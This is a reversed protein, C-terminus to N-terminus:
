EKRVKKGKKELFKSKPIPKSKLVLEPEPRSFLIPGIITETRNDNYFDIKLQPSYAKYSNHRKWYMSNALDCWGDVIDILVPQIDPNLRDRLMRGLAQDATKSRPTLFFITNLTPVDLGEAAMEYTAVIVRARLAEKRKEKKETGSYEKVMCAPIGSRILRRILSDIHEHHVTLIMIQREIQKLSKSEDPSIEGIRKRVGKSIEVMVEGREPDPVVLSVDNCEETTPPHVKEACTETLMQKAYAVAVCNRNAQRAVGKYVRTYYPSYIDVPELLNQPKEARCAADECDPYLINRNRIEEKEVMDADEIYCRESFRHVRVNLFIDSPLMPPVVIVNWSFYHFLVDTMGDTRSPDATLALMYPAAVQKVAFLFSPASCHHAEDFIVLGFEAMKESSFIKQALTQATACVFDCGDIEFIDAQIRGIKSGPRYEHIREEWQELLDGKAAVILTKTKLECACWIGCVTKGTGVPLVCVAGGTKQLNELIFKTASIQPRRQTEVLKRHESFKLEMNVFDTGPYQNNEFQFSKVSSFQHIGWFKPLIFIQNGDNDEVVDYALLPDKKKAFKSAHPNKPYELRLHKEVFAFFVRNEEHKLPVEFGRRTLIVNSIRVGSFNLKVPKGPAQLFPM